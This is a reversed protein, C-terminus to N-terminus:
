RADPRAARRSVRPPAIPTTAPVAAAEESHSGAACYAAADALALDIVTSHESSHTALVALAGLLGTLPDAIADGAFVPRGGDWAVLGGAVAADDGFAVRTPDRHGTVRLWTRARGDALVTDADAGAARLARPRSAEIVVDADAVLERLEGPATFDIQQHATGEHLLRHFEPASHRVPDPRNIAEVHMVEAGALRLLNGALPGAWLAGLNVVRPRPRGPSTAPRRAIRWPADPTPTEGLGGAPLGLLGCREIVARVPLAHSWEAVDRWPDDSAPTATLAPMLDADRALNLAWWGDAAPLLRTGEGASVTGRRHLGMLAAREGLLAPGDITVGSILEYALAAGRAVTAPRGVPHVPPGDARGTLPMAGSAAWDDAVLAPAAQVEVGGASLAPEDQDLVRTPWGLQALLRAAERAAPWGAATVARPSLWPVMSAAWPDM